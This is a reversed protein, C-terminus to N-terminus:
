ILYASAMPRCTVPKKFDSKDTIDTNTHTHTHTHIHTHTHTHTHIHTHTHTHTYMRAHAHTDTERDGLNNIVLPTIYCSIFEM